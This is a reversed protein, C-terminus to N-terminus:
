GCYADFYTNIVVQGILIKFYKYYIKFYGKKLNMSPLSM